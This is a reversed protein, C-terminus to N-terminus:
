TSLVIYISRAIKEVGHISVYVGICRKGQATFKVNLLIDRIEFTSNNDGLAGHGEPVTSTAKIVGLPLVRTSHDNDRM